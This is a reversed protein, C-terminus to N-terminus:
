KEPVDDMNTQEGAESAMRIYHSQEVSQSIYNWISETWSTKEM